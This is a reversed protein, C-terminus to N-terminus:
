AKRFPPESTQHGIGRELAREIHNSAEIDRDRATRILEAMKKRNDPREFAAREEAGRGHGGACGWVKWMLDHEDAFCSSAALLDAAMKPQKGAADALFRSGYWRCEAVTGIADSHVSFPDDDGENSDLPDSEIQDAWITYAAHGNMRDKWTTETRAVELGWKLTETLVENADVEKKDGFLFLDYADKFWDSKRFYGSPEFDLEKSNQFFSWGIITDGGDDYGTIIAPEPPGVIGHSIAPVGRDISDIIRERMEVENERFAKGCFIERDYGVGDFGHMFSAAANSSMYYTACNDGHWGPKWNFFFAAGTVTMTYAYDYPAGFFTTCARLVAPWIIDEPGSSGKPDDKVDPWFGIRPVNEIVNRTKM